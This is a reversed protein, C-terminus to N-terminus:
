RGPGCLPWQRRISCMRLTRLTLKVDLKRAEELLVFAKSEARAKFATVHLGAAEEQAWAEAREAMSLCSKAEKLRAARKTVAAGASQEPGRALRVEEQTPAIKAEIKKAWDMMKCVDQELWSADGPRSTGELLRGPRNSADSGIYSYFM